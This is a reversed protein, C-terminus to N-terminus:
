SGGHTKYVITATGLVVLQRALGTSAQSGVLWSAPPRRATRTVERADLEGVEDLAQALRDVEGWLSFLRRRVRFVVADLDLRQALKAAEAQDHRSAHELWLERPAIMREDLVGALYVEVM